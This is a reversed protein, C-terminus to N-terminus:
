AATPRAVQGLAMSRSPLKQRVLLVGVTLSLGATVTGRRPVSGAAREVRPRTACANRVECESAPGAGSPGSAARITTPRSIAMPTKVTSRAGGHQPGALLLDVDRQRELVGRAAGDGGLGPVHSDLLAPRSRCGTRRHRAQRAAGLGAVRRPPVHTCFRTTWRSRAWRRAGVGQQLEAAPGPLRLKRDAVVDPHAALDIRPRCWSGIREEVVLAGPRQDGQGRHEGHHDHRDRPQRPSRAM